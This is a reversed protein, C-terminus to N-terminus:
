TSVLCMYCSGMTPWYRNAQSCRRFCNFFFLHISIANFFLIICRVLVLFFPCWAGSCNLWIPYMMYVYYLSCQFAESFFTLYWYWEISHHCVVDHCSHYRQCSLSLMRKKTEAIWMSSLGLKYFRTCWTSWLVRPPCSNPMQVYLNQVLKEAVRLGLVYLSDM